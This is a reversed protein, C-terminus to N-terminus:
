AERDATELRRLLDSAKAEAAALGRRAKAAEAELKEGAAIAEAAQADKKRRAAERRAQAKAEQAREFSVAEAVARAIKADQTRRAGVLEDKGLEQSCAPCCTSGKTAVAGDAATSKVSGLTQSRNFGRQEQIRRLAEANAAVAGPKPKAVMGQAISDRAANGRAAAQLRIAAAELEAEM